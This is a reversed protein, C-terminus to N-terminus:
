RISQLLLGKAKGVPIHYDSIHLALIFCGDLLMMEVFEDSSLDTTEAYCLRAEQEMGKLLQFLSPLTTQTRNLLNNLARYKLRRGDASDLSPNAAHFFSISITTHTYHIENGKRIKSPVRYIYDVSQPVPPLNAM